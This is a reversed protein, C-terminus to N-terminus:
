APCITTGKPIRERNLERCILAKVQEVSGLHVLRKTTEGPLTVYYPGGRKAIPAFPVTNETSVWTSKICPNCMMQPKHEYRALTCEKKVGCKACVEVKTFLVALGKRQLDINLLMRDEEATHSEGNVFAWRSQARPAAGSVDDDGDYPNNM